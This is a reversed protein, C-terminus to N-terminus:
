DYFTVDDIELSGSGQQKYGDYVGGFTQFGFSGTKTLDFAPADKVEKGRRYAKFDSFPLDVIEFERRSIKQLKFKQEYDYGGIVGVQDKDTLVVKWHKLEGQGRVYLRLGTSGAQSAASDPITTKMGAFGAGNPQPNIMAFMVARQFVRTTQLSLVAKSMGPKRVTDSIENWSDIDSQTCNTFDFLVAGQGQVSGSLLFCLLLPYLAKSVRIM